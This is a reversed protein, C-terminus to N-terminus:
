IFSKICVLIRKRSLYNLFHVDPYTKPVRTELSVLKEELAEIKKYAENLLFTAQRVDEPFKLENNEQLAKKYKKYTEISDGNLYKYALFLVLFM